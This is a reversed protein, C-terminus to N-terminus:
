NLKNYIGMGEAVMGLEGIERVYEKVEQAVLEGRFAKALIAQPMQDIKIKLSQFQSEIKDALNLYTNITEVIKAQEEIPPVQIILARIDGLTLGSKTAGRKKSQFQGFGEDSMLYYALFKENIEIIPRALCIHQNVYAEIELDEEVLAIMGVDATISILIDRPKILTRKGEQREPLELYQCKEPRLDLDIRGFNMNTIRVFLQEGLPNYYEAWGRSGSTVFEFLENTSKEEWEGLGKGERWERTLEGTVAQTLVQQRFNKLLEPIRDLKERVRDLHGFVLDLKAVIRQQESLPAIPMQINWLIDPNVHPIGTGRTNKNLNEFQSRLFHYFYDVNMAVPTLAAITSGVAGYKGKSVWGSRAGDWVIAISNTDLMNSSEIDAYRRIEGLELAQIDLYPVSNEFEENALIRPKKGKKYKVIEKIKKQHWGKPLKGESM